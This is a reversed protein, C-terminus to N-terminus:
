SVCRKIPRARMQNLIRLALTSPTMKQPLVHSRPADGVLSFGAILDDAQGVDDYGESVIVHKMLLLRKSDLIRRRSDSMESKLKKEDSKLETALKLWAGLKSCRFNILDEFRMSAVDDCARSVVSPLGSFSDFPHKVLCAQQLFQEPTWVVGFVWDSCKELTVSDHLHFQQRESCGKTCFLDNSGHSRQKESDSISQLSPTCEVLFKSQRSVGGEKITQRLLKCRCPIWFSRDGVNICCCKTLQKDAVPLSCHQPINSLVILHSFEAVLAMAVPKSPQKAAAIASFHSLKLRKSFQQINPLKFEGAIFELVCEALAKALAPTYEAELSTDFVGQQM